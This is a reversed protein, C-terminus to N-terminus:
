ISRGCTHLHAYGNLKRLQNRPQLHAGGRWDRGFNGVYQKLNPRSPGAWENASQQPPNVASGDTMKAKGGPAAQESNSTRNDWFHTSMMPQHVPVLARRWVSIWNHCPSLPRRERVRRDLLGRSNTQSTGSM